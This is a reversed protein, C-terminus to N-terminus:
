FICIICILFIYIYELVMYVEDLVTSFCYVDALVALGM